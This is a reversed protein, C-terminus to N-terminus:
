EGSYQINSYYFLISFFLLFYYFCNHSDFWYNKLVELKSESAIGIGWWILLYFFIFDNCYFFFTEWVLIAMMMQAFAYCKALLISYIFIFIIFIFMRMIGSKIMKNIFVTRYHGDKTFTITKQQIKVDDLPKIFEIESYICIIFFRTLLYIIIVFVFLLVKWDIFWSIFTNWEHTHNKV